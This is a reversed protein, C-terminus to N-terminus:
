QFVFDWRLHSFVILDYDEIVTQKDQLLSRTTSLQSILHSVNQKVQSVKEM